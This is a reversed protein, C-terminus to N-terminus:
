GTTALHHLCVSIFIYYVKGNESLQFLLIPLM